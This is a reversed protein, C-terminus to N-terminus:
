NRLANFIGYPLIMMRANFSKWVYEASLNMNFILPKAMEVNKPKDLFRNVYVGSISECRHMMPNKDLMDGVFYNTIDSFSM